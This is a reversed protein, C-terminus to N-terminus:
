SLRKQASGSARPTTSHFLASYFLATGRNIIIIFRRIFRVRTELQSGMFYRMKDVCEASM